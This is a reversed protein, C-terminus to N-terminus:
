AALSHTVPPVARLSLKDRRSIMAPLPSRQTPVPPFWVCIYSIRTRETAGRSEDKVSSAWFQHCILALQRGTLLDKIVATRHLRVAPFTAADTSRAHLHSWGSLRWDWADPWFFCSPIPFDQTRISLSTCGIATQRGSYYSLFHQPMMCYSLRHLWITTKELGKAVATQSDGSSCSCCLAVCNCCNKKNSCAGFRSRAKTQMFTTALITMSPLDHNENM